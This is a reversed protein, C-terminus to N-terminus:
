SGSEVTGPVEPPQPLPPALHRWHSGDWDWITGDNAIVSRVFYGSPHNTLVQHVPVRVTGAAAEPASAGSLTANVSIRSLVIQAAHEAMDKFPNPGYSGRSRFGKEIMEALAAQNFGNAIEVM